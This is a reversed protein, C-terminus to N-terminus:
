RVSNYLDRYADMMKGMNHEQLICAKAAQALRIQKEPTDLLSLIAKNIAEVSLPPIILGTKESEVVERAGGVDTIIVPKEAAMAELISLSLGENVSPMIYIDMAALLRPIDQRFGTFIVAHSIHLQESLRELEAKLTGDGVLMLRAKPYRELVPIFGQLLLDYRKVKELRGSSGIVCQDATLGFEARCADRQLPEYYDDCEIANQILTVRSAPLCPVAFIKDRVKQSVAVLHDPLFLTARDLFAYVVGWKRDGPDNLIHKTAIHTIQGGAHRGTCLVRAAMLLTRPTHTHVIKIKHAKLYSRIRNTISDSGEGTKAFDAIVAGQSRYEDQMDGQISAAGIHWDFEDTGLHHVIRHVIRGISGDHFNNMLHLVANREM